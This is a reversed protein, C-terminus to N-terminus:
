GRQGRARTLSTVYNRVAERKEKRTDLKALMKEDTRALGMVKTVEPTVLGFLNDEDSFARSHFGETGEGVVYSVEAYERQEYKPVWYGVDFINGKKAHSSLWTEPAVCAGAAGPGIVAAAALRSLAAVPATSGTKVFRKGVRVLKSRLTEVKDLRFDATGFIDVMTAPRRMTYDRVFAAVDGKRAFSYLLVVKNVAARVTKAGEATVIVESNGTRVTEGTPSPSTPAPAAASPPAFM